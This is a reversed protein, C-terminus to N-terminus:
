EADLPLRVGVRADFVVTQLMPSSVVDSSKFTGNEMASLYKKNFKLEFRAAQKNWKIAVRVSRHSVTKYHPTALLSPEETRRVEYVLHTQVLDIVPGQPELLSHNKRSGIREVLHPPVKMSHLEFEDLVVGPLTFHTHGPRLDFTEKMKGSADEVRSLLQITWPFILKDSGPLVSTNYFPIQIVMNIPHTWAREGEEQSEWSACKVPMIAFLLVPTIVLEGTSVRHTMRIRDTYYYSGSLVELCKVVSTSITDNAGPVPSTFNSIIIPFTANSFFESVSFELPSSNLSGDTSLLRVVSKFYGPCELEHTSSPNWTCTVNDPLNSSLKREWQTPVPHLSLDGSVTRWLTEEAQADDDDSVVIPAAQSPWALASVLLLTVLILNSRM